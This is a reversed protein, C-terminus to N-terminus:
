LVVLSIPLASARPFIMAIAKHSGSWLSEKGSSDGLERDKELLKQTGKNRRVTKYEYPKERKTLSEEYDQM